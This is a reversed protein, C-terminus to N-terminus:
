DLSHRLSSTRTSSEVASAVKKAGQNSTQHCTVACNTFRQQQARTVWGECVGAAAVVVVSVKSGVRLNRCGCLLVVCCCKSAAPSHVGSDLGGSWGVSGM